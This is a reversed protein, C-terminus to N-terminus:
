QNKIRILTIVQLYLGHYRVLTWLVDASYDVDSSTSTSQPCDCEKCEQPKELLKTLGYVGAAGVILGAIACAIGVGSSHKGHTKNNTDEGFNERTEIVIPEEPKNNDIYNENDM